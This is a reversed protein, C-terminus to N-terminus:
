LRALELLIKATTQADSLARHHTFKINFYDALTLLKYDKVKDHLIEKALVITDLKKNKFYIGYQKGYYSIFRYDFPLNHAVLICDQSFNYFNKLVKDVIPANRVDEDKIGTLHIICEKLQEPCFVFSSFKETIKGQEIKVAGIEIIYDFDNTLINNRLGTTEIDFVVFTNNKMLEQLNEM